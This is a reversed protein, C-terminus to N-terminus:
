ASASDKSKPDRVNLEGNVPLANLIINLSGDKNVFGVGIRIWLAKEGNKVVTYVEKTPAM